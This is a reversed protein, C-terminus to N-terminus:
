RTAPRRCRSAAGACAPMSRTRWRRASSSSAADLAAAYYLANTYGTPTGQFKEFNERLAKVDGSGLLLRVREAALQFRARAVDTAASEEARLYFTNAGRLDRVPALDLLQGQLFWYWPLDAAPLQAEAIAASAVRAAELKRLQVAALAARLHWAAGRPEPLEALVKEAEEPQGGDLLASALALGLKPQDAGPEARLRRFMDAALLPLGFDHARQAAAWSVARTGASVAAPPPALPAPPNLPGQAWVAAGV